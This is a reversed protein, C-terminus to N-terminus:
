SWSIKEVALTKGLAPVGFIGLVRGVPAIDEHGVVQGEIRRRDQM